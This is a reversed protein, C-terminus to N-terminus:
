ASLHPLFLHFSVIVPGTVAGVAVCSFPALLQRILLAQTHVKLLRHTQKLSGLPEIVLFTHIDKYKFSDALHHCTYLLTIM